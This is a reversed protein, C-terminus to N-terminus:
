FIVEEIHQRIWDCKERDEIHMFQAGIKGCYANKYAEILEGLKWKTKKQVIEGGFPSKYNIEKDLDEETFGYTKPDTMAQMKEDPFRYKKAVSPIHKYHKQLELPDIDANFHGHTMFARLLM